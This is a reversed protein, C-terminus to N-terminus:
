IVTSFAEGNVEHAYESGSKVSYYTITLLVKGKEGKIMAAAASTCNEFSFDTIIETNWIIPLTHSSLACSYKTASESSLTINNVMIPEGINSKLRMKFTNYSASIQYDLCSFEPGLSCRDPLFKSPKLIGFYALAGIMLLIVLFAWGYTTLFELAAQSKKQFCLKRFVRFSKTESNGSIKSKQPHDFTKLKQCKM